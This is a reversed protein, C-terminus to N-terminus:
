ELSVVDKEYANRKKEQPTKRRGVSCEEIDNKRTAPEVRNEDDQEVVVM